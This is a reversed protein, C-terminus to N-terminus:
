LYTLTSLDNAAISAAKAHGDLQGCDLAARIYGRLESALAATAKDDEYAIARQLNDHMQTMRPLTAGYGTWAAIERGVMTALEQKSHKTM